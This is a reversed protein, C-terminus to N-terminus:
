LDRNNRAPENRGPSAATRERDMAALMQAPTTRESPILTAYRSQLWAAVLPQEEPLVGMLTTLSDLYEGHGVALDQKLQDFTLHAFANVKQDQRVQGEGTFWSRGSSTTGTVNSTTDTTQEITAKFSCGSLALALVLAVAIRHNM